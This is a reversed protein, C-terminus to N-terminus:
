FFRSSKPNMKAREREWENLKKRETIERQRSTKIEKERHSQGETQMNKIIDNDRETMRLTM